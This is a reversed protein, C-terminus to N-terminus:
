TKFNESVTVIKFFGFVYADLLKKFFPFVRQGGKELSNGSCNQVFCRLCKTVVGANHQLFLRRSVLKCFANPKGGHLGEGM